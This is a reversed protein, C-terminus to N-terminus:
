RLLLSLRPQPGAAGSALHVDGGLVIPWRWTSPAWTPRPDRGSNGAFQSEHQAQLLELGTTREVASRSSGNGGGLDLVPDCGETALREAVLLHLDGSRVFRSTALQNAAFRGPDEDFDLPLTRAARNAEGALPTVLLPENISTAAPVRLGEAFIRDHVLHAAIAM